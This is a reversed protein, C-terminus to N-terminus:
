GFLASSSRWYSEVIRLSMQDGDTNQPFPEDSRLNNEPIIISIRATKELFEGIDKPSLRHRKKIKPYLLVAKIESLIDDSLVIRIKDEKVWDLIRALDSHPKLVASVFINADLVVKLMIKDSSKTLTFNPEFKDGPLAFLGATFLEFLPYPM